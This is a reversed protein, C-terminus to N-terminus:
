KGLAQGRDNRGCATFTGDKLLGLSHQFGAAIQVVDRWQAVGSTQGYDDEGCATVTGDKLLGMSHARGAAIQVVDRWQAVGSRQGDSDLGCATVTGDKLLGLSHLGSGSAAIQVVDRWQAVGSTDRWQAVNYSQGDSDDSDSDDGSHFFFVRGCATVTGDKLLGLSHSGGAAIQVVDRWQAVGSTQGYTDHGCATVTGDKLLGLSLSGGAAIQVVDRWQAVGSTQGYCDEGCATVTGDKLLGLSHCGGAALVRLVHVTSRAEAQADLEVQIVRCDLGSVRSLQKEKDSANTVVIDDHRLYEAALSASSMKNAITSLLWSKLADDAGLIPVVDCRSADSILAPKLGTSTPKMQSLWAEYMTWFRSVYTMDLLIVVRCGLYLMNVESLM